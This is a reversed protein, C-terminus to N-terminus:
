HWTTIERLADDIVLQRGEDRVARREDTALADRVQPVLRRYLMVGDPGAFVGGGSSACALWRAARRDDGDIIAVGAAYILLDSQVSRNARFLEPVAAGLQHRAADVDGASALELAMVGVATVMAWVAMARQSARAAVDAATPDGLMHLVFAHLPDVAHRVTEPGSAVADALLPGARGLDDDSLAILGAYMLAFGTWTSPPRTRALELARQILKDASQIAAPDNLGRGFADLMFATMARAFVSVDDSRADAEDALLHLVRDAGRPMGGGEAQTRSASAPSGWVGALFSQFALESGPTLRPVIEWSWQVVM